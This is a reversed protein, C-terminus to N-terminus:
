RSSPTMANQGIGHLALIQQESSKSLQELTTIGANRIARQAPKVLKALLVEIQM